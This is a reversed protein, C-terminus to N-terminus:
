GSLWVKHIFKFIFLTAKATICLIQDFDLGKFVGSSNASKPPIYLYLGMPKEYLNTFIHKIFM